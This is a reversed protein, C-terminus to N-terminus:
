ETMLAVRNLGAGSAIDIVEAVSRFAIGKEGRVFVVHGPAIGSFLMLRQRLQTADMSERNIRVTGDACVTIVIDQSPPLQKWNAPVPQPAQTRLGTPALPTVVMFIVISVLLIDIMPTMNIQAKGGLMMAM